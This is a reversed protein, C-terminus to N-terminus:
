DSVWKCYNIKHIYNGYVIGKNYIKDNFNDLTDLYENMLKVFKDYNLTNDKLKQTAYIKIIPHHAVM